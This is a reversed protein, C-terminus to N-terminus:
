FTIRIRSNKEVYVEPRTFSKYKKNEILKSKKMVIFYKNDDYNKTIGIIQDKNKSYEYAQNFSDFIPTTEKKDYEYYDDIVWIEQDCFDGKLGEPCLNSDTNIICSKDSKQDCEKKNQYDTITNDWFNSSDKTITNNWFNSSDKTKLSKNFKLNRTIKFSYYIFLLFILLFLIKKIM